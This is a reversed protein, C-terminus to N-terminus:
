DDTLSKMVEPLLEELNEAIEEGTYRPKINQPCNWDYAQITLTILREVKSPYEPDRLRAALDPDDEADVVTATAWIKLRIRRPFDLLILAVKGGHNINGVSIYQRNGRYDSFGLTQDDLVKLFGKPGGRYQVYPWGNEGTTAMFFFDLSPIYDKEQNTLLYRDPDEEMREYNKRSGYHEQAEKVSPTFAFDTFNRGM